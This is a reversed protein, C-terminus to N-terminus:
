NCGPNEGEREREKEKLFGSKQPVIILFQTLEKVNKCFYFLPVSKKIHQGCTLCM